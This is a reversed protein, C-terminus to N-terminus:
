LSRYKQPSIGIAKSFVRSFYKSDPYGVQEAVSSISDSTHRLLRKAANMRCLTLYESFTSGTEKKFLTSLYASSLQSNEAVQDLTLPEAFHSEIYEVAKQIPAGAKNELFAFYPELAQLLAESFHTVLMFPTVAHDVARLVPSMDVSVPIEGLIDTIIRIVANCIDFLVSPDRSQAGATQFPAFIQKLGDEVMQREGSQVQTGFVAQQSKSFVANADAQPASLVTYGDIICPSATSLRTRVAHEAQQVAAPLAQPSPALPAACLALSFSEFSNRVDDFQNSIMQYLIGADKNTPKGPDALQFLCYMRSRLTLLEFTSCRPQLVGQVILATRSFVLPMLDYDLMNLCSAKIIFFGAPADRLSFHRQRNLREIQMDGSSVRGAALDSLFQQRMQAGTVSLQEKMEARSAADDRQRCIGDILKDLSKNLEASNIPKLLYDTVGYRLASHAYEFHRYGSIVIFRTGPSIKQVREILALGDFTPIRIDTIIIDLHTEEAFALASAGDHKVAVVSIGKKEWDVLHLILQCIMKEDDVIMASLM